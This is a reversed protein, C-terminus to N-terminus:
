DHRFTEALALLERFQLHKPLGPAFALLDVCWLLKASEDYVFFTEYYGGALARSNGWYGSMEVATYEGLRSLKYDVRTSDMVDGDYREWVYKARTRYLALSDELAPPHDWDVWFVGLLRAPGDRLLEIGPPDPKGGLLRYEAPVQVVFGYTERIKRTIQKDEYRLLHRRLRARCSAEITEVVQDGRSEIVEGLDDSKAATVVVTLQGPGPLNEREFVNAEGANAEAVAARGLQSVIYRGVSTVPSAVGCVVINKVAPVDLLDAARIHTVTFAREQDIYYDITRTLRSALARAAVDESGDESVILVESYSGAPPTDMELCGCVLLGVAHIVAFRTAVTIRTM